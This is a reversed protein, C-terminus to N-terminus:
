KKLLSLISKNNIYINRFEDSEVQDETLLEDALLARIIVLAMKLSKCELYELLVNKYEERFDLKPLESDISQNNCKKKIEGKIARLIKKFNESDEENSVNNLFQKFIENNLFEYSEFYYFLDHYRINKFIEYINEYKLHESNLLCEFLYSCEKGNDYVKNGLNELIIQYIKESVLKAEFLKKDKLETGFMASSINRLMEDIVIQSVNSKKAILYFVDVKIDVNFYMRSVNKILNLLMEETCEPHYIIAKYIDENNFIRKPYRAILINLINKNCNVNKLIFKLKGYEIDNEGPDKKESLNSLFKEIELAPLNEDSILIRFILSGMISDKKNNIYQNYLDLLDETGLLKANEINKVRYSNSYTDQHLNYTNDIVEVEVIKFEGGKSIGDLNLVDGRSSIRESFVDTIKKFYTKDTLFKVDFYDFDKLLDEKETLNVFRYLKM